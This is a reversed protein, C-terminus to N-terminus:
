FNPSLSVQIKCLMYISSDLHFIVSVNGLLSRKAFLFKLRLLPYCLKTSDRKTQHPRNTYQVKGSRYKFNVPTKLVGGRLHYFFTKLVFM